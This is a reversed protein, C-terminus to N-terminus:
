SAPPAAPGGRRAPSTRPGAAPDEANGVTDKPASPRSHAAQTSPACTHALEDASRPALQAGATATLGAPSSISALPSARGLIAAPGPPSAYTEYVRLPVRGYM